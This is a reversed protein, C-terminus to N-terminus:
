VSIPYKLNKSNKTLDICEMGYLEMSVGKLMSSKCKSKNPKLGSYIAFTDFIDM